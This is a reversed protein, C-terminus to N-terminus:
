SEDAREGLVCIAPVPKLQLVEQRVARFGAARLATSFREAAQEADRESADKNRPQHTVAMLGRPKLLSHLLRFEADIEPFFQAVNVSYIKDFSAPGLAAVEDVSMHRICVRGRAIEDRLRKSAQAVMVSSHDIGIVWGQQVILAVHSLAVGPGCGIELVADSPKLALLDVTWRNRQVNSLRNAM